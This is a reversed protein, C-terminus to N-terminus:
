GHRDFRYIKEPTICLDLRVDHAGVDPIDGVPPFYSLGVKPVAKRCRSLFRDYFGRGYGVRHGEEDFCLLPVLILDLEKEDVLDGGVPEAIGWRNKKLATRADYALHELDDAAFDVRPLVLRIHPYDRRLGNLLFVTDVEGKKRIPLFLHVSRIDALDFYVWFHETIRLSKERRETESLSRQRDLYIKRLASKNM